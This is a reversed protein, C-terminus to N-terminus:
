SAEETLTRVGCNRCERVTIHWNQFVIRFVHERWSCTTSM